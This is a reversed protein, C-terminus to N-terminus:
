HQVGLHNELFTMVRTEYARPDHAYFDEHAAEPLIWMAKPEQARQFMAEVEALPTHLDKAGAVILVPAALETIRAMPSLQEPMIGLRPELQMLLLPTLCPALAGLRMAIRNRIAQEINAYVAELVVADFGGPDKALLVAAGGLSVGIVGIKRGPHHRAIWERAAMVGVSERMGFTIVGGDSEGHGPLDLLLVSYGRQKLMRARDIMAVRNSRIGHLLMVSPKEAKGQLWWGRVWEGELTPISISEAAFDAPAPPIIAPQAAMLRGGVLWASGTLLIAAILCFIIAHKLLKISRRRRCM